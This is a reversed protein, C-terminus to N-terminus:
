DGGGREAGMVPVPTERELEAALRVQRTRVWAWLLLCLVAGGLVPAPLGFYESLGGMMLAGIAPTGRAVMGYLSMVRGRMEAVISTQILTQITVGQVVFAWGTVVMVPMAVWYNHALSFVILALSVVLLSAVTVGTYGRLGGRQALWAGAAMAGVGHLTLLTSYAGAGRGFVEGAFGPLLDTFPRVFLSVLLMTGLLVAIAETGATYRVGAVADALLSRKTTQIIAPAIRIAMLCGYFALYTLANFGFAWGVGLSATVAGGLAPGIFRSSNFVMSNVAIASTLHERGAINYITTMRAPRNFAVIIGRILAFVVLWEVTVHGSFVLATLASAQALQLLQTRKLVKFADSRDVLAGAFLGILFTPFLDAFAIVGLWAGSQTLDWTLWGMAVRQVWNGSTSVLNGLLYFRYNRIAFVQRITTFGSM